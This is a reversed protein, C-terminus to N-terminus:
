TLPITIRLYIQAMDSFAKQLVSWSLLVDLSGWKSNGRLRIDCSVNSQLGKDFIHAEM